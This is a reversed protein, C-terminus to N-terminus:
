GLGLMVLAQEKFVEENGMVRNTWFKFDKNLNLNNALVLHIRGKSRGGRMLPILSHNSTLRPFLCFEFIAHEFGHFWVEIRAEVGHSIALM